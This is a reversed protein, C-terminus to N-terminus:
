GRRRHHRGKRRRYESKQGCWKLPRQAPAAAEIPNKAAIM